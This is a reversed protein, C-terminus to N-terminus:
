QNWIFGMYLTVWSPELKVGFAPLSSEPKRLKQTSSTLLRHLSELKPSKLQLQEMALEAKEHIAAFNEGSRMKSLTGCLVRAGTTASPLNMSKSQLLRTLGECPGFLSSGDLLGLYTEMHALSKLVYDVKSRSASETLEM